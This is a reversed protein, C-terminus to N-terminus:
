TMLTIEDRELHCNESESGEVYFCNNKILKDMLKKNFIFLSQDPPQSAERSPNNRFESTM